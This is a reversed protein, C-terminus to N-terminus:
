HTDLPVRRGEFIEGYSDSIEYTKANYINNVCATLATLACFILVTQFVKKM